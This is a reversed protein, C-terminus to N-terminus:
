LYLFVKKLKNKEDKETKECKKANRELDKAAFKLNFLHEIAWSLNKSSKENQNSFLYRYFCNKVDWSISCVPLNMFYECTIDSWILIVM